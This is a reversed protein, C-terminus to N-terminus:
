VRRVVVVWNDNMASPPRGLDVWGGEQGNVSSKSGTALGGGWARTSWWRVTYAGTGALRMRSPFGYSAMGVCVKWPAALAWSRQIMEDAPKMSALPLDAAEVLQPVRQSAAFLRSWVRFDELDYDSGRNWFEVGAGGGFFSGWVVSRLTAVHDGGGRQNDLPVGEGGTEDTTVMWPKGAASSATVWQRTEKHVDYSNYVQLSATTLASQRGLMSQYRWKHNPFTHMALPRRYASTLSRLRGVFMQQQGVSIPVSAKNANSQFGQEEGLNLIAGNAGSLFRAVMERYYVRRTFAFSGRGEDAEFLQQNEAETLYFHRVIGVTDAFAFLRSWQALKSVDYRARENYSTFPVVDKSDGLVSNTLIFLSNLNAKSLWRVMGVVGKGRGGKWTPDGAVWDRVHPGWTHHAGPTNDFASDGLVNEPCGAGNKVWVKGTGSWSPYRSGDTWRLVGQGRFDKGGKDSAQVAFTKSEDNFSVPRGAAPDESAAVWTGARFAATVKWSGTTTPLFECAWKDGGTAGSDAANGDAAYYGPTRLRTGSAAHAWTCDLRYDTFPNPTAAENTDPGVWTVVQRHHVRQPGTLYAAEGPAAGTAAAALLAATVLVSAAASRAPRRRRLPGMAASPLPFLSGTANPLSYPPSVLAVATPALALYGPCRWCKRQHPAPAFHSLPPLLPTRSYRHNSAAADAPIAAPEWRGTPWGLYSSPPPPAGGHQLVGWSVGGM